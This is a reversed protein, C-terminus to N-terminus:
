ILKSETEGLDHPRLEWADHCDECLFGVPASAPLRRVEQVVSDVITAAEVVTHRTPLSKLMDLTVPDAEGNSRNMLEQQSMM